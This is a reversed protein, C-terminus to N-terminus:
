DIKYNFKCNESSNITTSVSQDGGNGIENSEAETNEGGFNSPKEFGLIFIIFKLM